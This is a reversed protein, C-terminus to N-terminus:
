SIVYTRVEGNKFRYQSFKRPDEFSLFTQMIQLTDAHSTLVISKGTYTSELESYHLSYIFIFYYHSSYQVFCFVNCCCSLFVSVNITKIIIIQFAFNCSFSTLSFNVFSCYFFSHVFLQFSVLHLLFM